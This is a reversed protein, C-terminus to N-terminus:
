KNERVYITTTRLVEVPEDVTKPLNFPDLIVQEHFATRVGRGECAEKIAAQIADVTFNNTDPFTEITIKIM